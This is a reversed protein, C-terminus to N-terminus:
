FLWKKATEILSQPYTTGHISITGSNYPKDLSVEWFFMGALGKDKVYNAKQAIDYPSDFSIFLDQYDNLENTNVITSAKNPQNYFSDWYYITQAVSNNGFVSVFQSINEIKIDKYNPRVIQCPLQAGYVDTLPPLKIGLGHNIATPESLLCAQGVTKSGISRAYAPAGLMIQRNPVDNNNLDLVGQQISADGNISNLPANTITNKAFSMFDYAMLNFNTISDIFQRSDQLTVGLSNKFYNDISGGDDDQNGHPLALSIVAAQGLAKRLSIVVSHLNQTDNISVQATGNFDIRQQPYEWDIDIGSFVAQGNNCKLNNLLYVTDNVFNDIGIQTSFSQSFSGSDGWGGVSLVFKINPNTEKIKCVQSLYANSKTQDFNAVVERVGLPTASPTALDLNPTPDLIHGDLTSSPIWFSYLVESVNVLAEKVQDVSGTQNYYYAMLKPQPQSTALQQSNGANCGQIALVLSCLVLKSLKTIRNMRMGGQTSGSNM